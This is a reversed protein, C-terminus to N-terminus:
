QCMDNNTTNKSSVVCPQWITGADTQRGLSTDVQVSGSYGFQDVTQNVANKLIITDSVNSLWSDGAEEFVYHAGPAISVSLNKTIPGVEIKWGTLSITDPGANYLEVWESTTTNPLIENLIIDTGYGPTPVIRSILDLPAFDSGTASDIGVGIREVSQGFGPSAEGSGGWKVTDIVTDSSDLLQLTGTNLDLDGTGLNATLSSNNEFCDGTWPSNDHSLLAFEGPDLNINGANVLAVKNSDGDQIQFDKLNVTVSSGNYVELWQVQKPNKENGCEANPMVENIVLTTGRQRVPVPTPDPTITPFTAAASLVNGASVERDMLYSGTTTVFITAIALAPLVVWAKRIADLDLHFKSSNDQSDQPIPDPLQAIAPAQAVAEVPAPVAPTANEVATLFRRPPLPALPTYGHVAYHDQPAPLEVLKELKAPPKATAAMLPSSAAVSPAPAPNALFAPLAKDPLSVPEPSTDPPNAVKNGPDKKKLMKALERKITKFEEYIIITAPIVVLIIFGYPKKAFDVAYGIYPVSFLVSGVIQSRKISGNDSTKNADGKTEYTIEGAENKLSSIRHTVTEEGNRSFTVIDGLAYGYKKPSVLAVSGTKVAPEMSGSLVVYPLVPAIIGMKGAGYIGASIAVVILMLAQITILTYKILKM